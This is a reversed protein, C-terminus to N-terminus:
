NEGLEEEWAFNDIQDIDWQMDEICSDQQIAFTLGIPAGVEAVIQPRLEEKHKDLAEKLQMLCAKRFARDTSWTTEDFARRAANIAAEMDAPSGDAVQGIVEETAPNINDYTKGGEAEVLKGDILMRAEFDVAARRRPRGSSRSGCLVGTDDARAHA